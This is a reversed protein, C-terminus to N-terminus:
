NFSKFSGDYITHGNAASKSGNKAKPKVLPLVFTFVTGRGVESEVWIRGGHLEVLARTISLGLGTGVHRRREFYLQRHHQQYDEFILLLSEPAIGIGTDEVSVFIVKNDLWARVGISGVQTFKIANSFLNLLIQRIRLRDAMFPPLNDELEMKLLIPKQQLMDKVWPLTEEIIEPLSILEPQLTLQGMEIKTIDFIDNLLKMLYESGQVALNLYEVQAENIEGLAGDAVLGTSNIVTNLPTRLEHSINTLFNVKLQDTKEAAERAEALQIGSLVLSVQEQLQKLAMQESYGFFRRSYKPGIILYGLSRAGMELPLALSQATEPQSDTQLYIADVMLRPSIKQGLFQKLAERNNIGTLEYCLAEIKESFNATDPFFLWDVIFQTGGYLHRRLVLTTLTTSFVTLNRNIEQLILSSFWHILSFIILYTFITVLAFGGWILALRGAEWATNIPPLPLRRHYPIPLTRAMPTKLGIIRRQTLYDKVANLYYCL